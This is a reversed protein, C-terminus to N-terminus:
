QSVHAPLELVVKRMAALTTPAPQPGGDVVARYEGLAEEAIAGATTSDAALTRAADALTLCLEPRDGRASQFFLTARVASLLMGLARAPSASAAYSARPYLWARHEAVARTAVDAASWGRLNPFSATRNGGLLAFSVPDTSPCELARLRTRVFDIGPRILLREAVLTPYPGQNLAAAAIYSLPDAVDTSLAAFADDPARPCVIGRWDALPLIQPSRGSPLLPNPRWAGGALALDDPDGGILRV